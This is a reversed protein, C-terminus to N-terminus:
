KGGKFKSHNKIHHLIEEAVEERPRDGDVVIINAWWYKNALYHYTDWVHALQEEKGLLEVAGKELRIRKLCVYPPVELFFTLDPIIFGRNLEYLWEKSAFVSGFAVSSWAYRDTVVMQGKKLRPIIDKDLHFGGDAAFLLRLTSPSINRIKKQLIQHIIEGIPGNTPEKTLYPGLGLKKLNEGLLHVQTSSGSGDLGEIDVFFGPYKHIIM